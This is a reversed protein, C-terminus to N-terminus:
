SFTWHIFVDDGDIEIRDILAEVLARVEEKTGSDIFQGFTRIADLATKQRDDEEPISDLEAQLRDRRETLPELKQRLEEPDFDGQAYLDLLRSRQTNLKQIEATIIKRRDDKPAEHPEELASPDLVLTRIQDLVIKDLDDELVHANKCNPDKVMDLNYKARSHCSYYRKKNAKRTCIYRAGCRKCWVLGGLLSPSKPGAPRKAALLRPQISDFDEKSVLAEHSGQCVVGDWKVMGAYVPNMLCLRVRQSNWTGYSTTYGKQGFGKAIQYTGVGGIFDAFMERIQMAEYPDPVLQGDIYRYGIPVNGGGRWKGERNRGAKGMSMREKIKERELQAFVALIGIMAVGFPTGTDFNETMSVFDCGNARFVDEILYLTDKQSRSLRDLKWVVVRTVKRDKVDSILDQLAPRDLSAGSFGPDTYVKADKWGMALSYSKLRQIQEDISYGDKAQEASSVRVYLAIM